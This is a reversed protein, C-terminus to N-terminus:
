KIKKDLHKKGLITAGLAGVLYTLEEPIPLAYIRIGTFATIYPVLIHNNVLLLSYMYFLHSIGGREIIGSFASLREKELDAMIETIKGEDQIHKRLLSPLWDKLKNLIFKTPM